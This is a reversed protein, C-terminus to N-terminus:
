RRRLALRAARLVQRDLRMGSIMPRLRAVLAKDARARAATEAALAKELGQLRAQAAAVARQLKDIDDSVARDIILHTSDHAVPDVPPM